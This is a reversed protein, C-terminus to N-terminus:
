IIYFILVVELGSLSHVREVVWFARINHAKYKLTMRRVLSVVITYIVFAIGALNLSMKIPFLFLSVKLTVKTEKIRFLILKICSM